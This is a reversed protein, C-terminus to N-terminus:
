CRWWMPGSAPWLPATFTACEPPRRRKGPLRDCHFRAVRKVNSVGMVGDQGSSEGAADSGSAQPLSATRWILSGTTRITQMTNHRSPFPKKEPLSIATMEARLLM